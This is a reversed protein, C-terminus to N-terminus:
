SQTGVETSIQNLTCGHSIWMKYLAFNLLILIYKDGNMMADLQAPKLQPALKIATNAEMEILM